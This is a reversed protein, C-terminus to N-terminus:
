CPYRLFHVGTLLLLIAYFAKKFVIRLILINMTHLSHVIPGRGWVGPIGTGTAYGEVGVQDLCYGATYKPPFTHM